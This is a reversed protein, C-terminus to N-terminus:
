EEVAEALLDGNCLGSLLQQVVTFGNVLLEFLGEAYDKSVLSGLQAASRLDM